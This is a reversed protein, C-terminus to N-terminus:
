KPDGRLRTDPFPLGRGKFYFQAHGLNCFKMTINDHKIYYPYDPLIGCFLCIENQWQKYM